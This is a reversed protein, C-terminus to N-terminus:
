ITSASSAKAIWRSISGYNCNAIKRYQKLLEWIPTPKYWNILPKDWDMRDYSLSLSELFGQYPFDEISSRDSSFRTNTL